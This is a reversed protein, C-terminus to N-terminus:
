NAVREGHNTSYKTFVPCVPKIGRTPSFIYGSLDWYNGPVPRSECMTHNTTEKWKPLFEAKKVTLIYAVDCTLILSIDDHTM